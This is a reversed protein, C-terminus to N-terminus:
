RLPMGNMWPAGATILKQEFAPIRVQILVELDAKLGKFQEKAIELCMQQTATPGYSLNWAGGSAVGLRQNVTPYDYESLERKAPDGYVQENFEALERKITYLEQFLEGPPEAMSLLATQMANIKKQADNYVISAASTAERMRTVEQRFAFAKQESMGELAGEYLKEVKFEMPGALDTIVGDIEKSLTVSYTGPMVAIGSRQRNGGSENRHIDIAGWAPYRLDWAVRHFGKGMKGNLKRVVSGASDRITLWIKPKEQLREEKLIEWDPFTLPKEDKKLKAEEKKRKSELTPYDESLHYTIVAGYEPNDASYYSAGQSGPGMRQSFMWADRATYLAGEKELKEETVERLPSYDDLIFFGRGFSACVLDNREKQIVLDRFSITPAGGKLKMWKEGGNITFFIGYETAAFMLEPKVHDQVVRWVFYKEPLDGTISKWSKGKDNSKLLYPKFDGYKHNDLAVYVTNEDYLDAKIDNVFATEPVDPLSGAEIKRWNAGGDETVQILGDDTGAYILGEKLPSEALSTISNYQSMADVDWTADWSWTQDMLPLRLRNENRSLDESIPTWSDGRNDSRWVRQSAFYLRTPSHPSVLIPSDWNFRDLKEGEMPQPRISVSEGTILDVRGLYGQQSECYVIDNNGPETATQHGDGGYIMAWDANTIGEYRDTQSPGGQTGNDQTGGFVQYFPWATNVSVKYFQTVPLNAIYRWTKTDDFSEYIGGDTGVLLYDPDDPRFTLSHNDVHKNRENMREFTKGGDESVQVRVDLLYIKDFQHPSAVLEQYYHPGTAGSVTSSQKSWSAGRNVSKYIGGTRRDLEIAAYIIDPNQPSIALGTKGMDGGPLGKKLESWTEGGDTSKQIGSGPGGGMYAAVTRHRQWTAAYLIDPDRPDLVIDTVGIWEDDGLTKIWTAGGDITKYLGRDDGKNWLPGQAAVWVIDSNEPHVIIKSIHQSNKLGMNTWNAGGDDSRYIGDGIGVHRGGVNEGTGVWITHPNNPDITVCGISYVNQEDFVPEWTTGSNITKWVGGSGVAVYWINNNEPHIAIEAIRGSKMAPGINRLKFASFTKANMLSKEEEEQSNAPVIFAILLFISFLIQLLNKM